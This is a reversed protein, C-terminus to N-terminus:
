FEGREQMRLRTKIIYSRHITVGFEEFVRNALETPKGGARVWDKLDNLQEHTLKSNGHRPRKNEPDYVPIRHVQGHRTFYQRVEAVKEFFTALDAGTWPVGLNFMECIEEGAFFDYPITVKVEWPEGSIHVDCLCDSDHEAVGCGLLKKTM